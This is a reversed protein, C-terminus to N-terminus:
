LGVPVTSEGGSASAHRSTTAHRVVHGRLLQRRPRDVAVTRRELRQASLELVVDVPQSEAEERM